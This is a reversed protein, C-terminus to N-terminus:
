FIENDINEQSLAISQVFLNQILVILTCNIHIIIAYIWECTIWPVSGDFIIKNLITRILLLKTDIVAVFQRHKGVEEIFWQLPWNKSTEPFENHPPRVDIDQLIIDWRWLLLANFDYRHLHVLFWSFPLKHGFRLQPDFRFYLHIRIILLVYWLLLLIKLLSSFDYLPWVSFSHSATDFIPRATLGPIGM